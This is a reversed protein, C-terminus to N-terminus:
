FSNFMILHVALPFEGLPVATSKFFPFFLIVERLFGCMQECNEGKPKIEWCREIVYGRGEREGLVQLWFSHGRWEPTWIGSFIVMTYQIINGAIMGSFLWWYSGNGMFDGLYMYYMGMWVGTMSFKSSYGVRIDWSDWRWKSNGGHDWWGVWIMFNGIFTGMWDGDISRCCWIWWIEDVFIMNVYIWKTNVQNESYVDWENRRFSYGMHPNGLM